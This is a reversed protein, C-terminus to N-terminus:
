YPLLVYLYIQGVSNTQQEVTWSKGEEAQLISVHETISFSRIRIVDDVRHSRPWKPEVACVGEITARTHGHALLVATLTRPDYEIWTIKEHVVPETDAKPQGFLGLRSGLRFM